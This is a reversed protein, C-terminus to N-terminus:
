LFKECVQTDINPVIINKTRPQWVYSLDGDSNTTMSFDLIAVVKHFRAVQIM